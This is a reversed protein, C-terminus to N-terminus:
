LLAEHNWVPDTVEEGNPNSHQSHMSTHSSQRSRMPIAMAKGVDSATRRIPVTRRPSTARGDDTSGEGQPGKSIYENWQFSAVVYPDVSPKLGRGASITISLRGKVDGAVAKKLSDKRRSRSSENSRSPSGRSSPSHARSPTASSASRPTRPPTSQNTTTRTLGETEASPPAQFVSHRPTISSTPPKVPSIFLGPKSLHSAHVPQTNTIGSLPNSTLAFTNRRSSLLHDLAPSKTRKTRPLTNSDRSATASPDRVDHQPMPTSASSLPPTPYGHQMLHKPSEEEKKSAQAHEHQHAPSAEHLEHNAMNHSSSTNSPTSSRTSSPNGVQGFYSSFIGPTRKDLGSPAPTQVGSPLPPTPTDSRADEEHTSNAKSSSTFFNTFPM